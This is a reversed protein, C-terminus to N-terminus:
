KPTFTLDNVNELTMPLYHSKPVIREVLQYLMDPYAEVANVPINSINLTFTGLPTLDRRLYRFYVVLNSNRLRILWM